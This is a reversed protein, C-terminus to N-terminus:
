LWVKRMQRRESLVNELNRWMQARSPIGNRKIASYHEMAHFCRWKVSSSVSEPCVLLVWLDCGTRPWAPHSRLRLGVTSVHCPLM